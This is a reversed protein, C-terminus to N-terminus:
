DPDPIRIVFAFPEEYEYIWFQDRYKMEDFDYFLRDELLHRRRRTDEPNYIQYYHTSFGNIDYQLNCSPCRWFSNRSALSLIFCRYHM